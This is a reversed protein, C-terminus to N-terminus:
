KLTIHIKDKLANGIINYHKKMFAGERLIIAGINIFGLRLFSKSSAINNHSVSTYFKYYNLDKIQYYITAKNFGKGRYKKHVFTPGVWCEDDGLIFTGLTHLQYKNFHTWSYSVPRKNYYGIYLISGNELWNKCHLLQLRSFDIHRVKDWSEFKKIEFDNKSTNLDNCNGDLLYFDTISKRYFVYFITKIFYKLTDLVGDSKLYIFFKKIM